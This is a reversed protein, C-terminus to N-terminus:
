EYKIADVPNTLAAKLAQWSITLIAVAVSLLASLIFIWWHEMIDISYAFNGLWDNMFYWALPWAIVNSIIVWKTFQKSLMFAIRQISSGLAKRIGIEKTKQEANYSALGFLGLCAILIAILTFYIFIEGIRQEATYQSNFDEDLFYYDFPMSAEIEQWKEKLQAIQEQVNGPHLRINLNRAHSSSIFMLCPDVRDHLSRFHYDKVVGIIHMDFEGDRSFGTITKGLPEDWGLRKVLTENIIVASSDTAFDRSFARGEVIEMQMTEIYDHDVINTFIIVPNNEDYGEPVYGTGNMDRGPVFRSASVASVCSLNSFESKFVDAKERIREGLMPIVVMREKNFGLNKQQLFNLQNYVFGTSIILFVSITFQVIVLVNRIPSKKSSNGPTGKLVKIPQFSSLYFAPYSGAILGVIIALGILLLFVSAGEFLNLSLEQDLLHNFVPLSIEILLLAFVLGIFSLILSEGIFQGILQKRYAGVVKRLGVERARKMSRATSLNMFNICAILLIFVAIAMFTYIYSIDSNTEMEAMLNSHLHISTLSQLYPDFKINELESLDEMYQLYMEPFRKEVERPDAGKSLLVYTYLSLAGWNEYAEKGNSELQSTFSALVEFKFHSNSPPNAVVGTVTYNRKDNVRITKGIPNEQGFYKEATSKTIVFSYPKVLATKPNGRLLEFSFIDFFTSDVYLLGEQFFRKDEYVFHVTQNFKDIRTTNIIEPIDRVMAEATPAASVAVNMADGSIIGEICVRYIRDSNKHFKDFSLENAVYLVILIFAALGIALGSINIISYGKQRFLNRLAIIFYNKLM